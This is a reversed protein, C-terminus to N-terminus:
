RGAPRSMNEFSIPRTKLKEILAHWEAKTHIELRHAKRLPGIWARMPNGAPVSSEFRTFSMPLGSLNPM